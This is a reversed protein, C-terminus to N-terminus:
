IFVYIYIYECFDMMSNTTEVWIADDRWLIPIFFGSINSNSDAIYTDCTDIPGAGNFGVNGWSDDVWTVMTM